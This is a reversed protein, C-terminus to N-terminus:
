YNNIKYYFTFPLYLEPFDYVSNVPLITLFIYKSIYMDLVNVKTYVHIFISMEQVFNKM